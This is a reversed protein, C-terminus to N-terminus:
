FCVFLRLSHECSYLSLTSESFRRQKPILLLWLQLLPLREAEREIKHIPRKQELEFWVGFIGYPLMTFPCGGHMSTTSLSFRGMIKCKQETIGLCRRKSTKSTQMQYKPNSAKHSTSIICSWLFNRQSKAAWLTHVHIKIFQLELYFYKM